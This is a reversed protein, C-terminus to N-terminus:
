CLLEDKSSGPLTFGEGRGRRGELFPSGFIVFVVGATTVCFSFLEVKEGEGQTKRAAHYEMGEGANVHFLKWISTDEEKLEVLKLLMHTWHKPWGGPALVYGYKRGEEEGKRVEEEVREMEGRLLGTLHKVQDPWSRFQLERRRVWWHHLRQFIKPSTVASSVQQGTNDAYNSLSIFIKEHFAVSEQM